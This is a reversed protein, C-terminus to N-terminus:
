YELHGSLLTPTHHTTEKSEKWEPGM